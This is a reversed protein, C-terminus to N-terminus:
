SGTTPKGTNDEVEEPKEKKRVLKVTLQNLGFYPGLDMGNLLQLSEGNINLLLTIKKPDGTNSVVRWDKTILGANQTEVLQFVM